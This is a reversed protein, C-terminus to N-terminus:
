PLEEGRRPNGGEKMSKEKGLSRPLEETSGVFFWDKLQVVPRSKSFAFPASFVSFVSFGQLSVRVFCISVYM